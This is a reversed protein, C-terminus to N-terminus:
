MKKLISNITVEIQRSIKSAVMSPIKIQYTEPDVRFSALVAMENGKLTITGPVSVDRTQGHITLKGKVNVPYTGDKAAPIKDVQGKFVAKPFKDSEMYSENFHEQMLQKEFKFSKVPVQFVVDGNAIDVAAAAENNFAEINEIPTASFFSVQGSRTMYKQAFSNIGIVLLLATMSIKKM